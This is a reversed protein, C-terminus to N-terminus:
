VNWGPSLRIGFDHKTQRLHCHISESVDWCSAWWEFLNHDIIHGRQRISTNHYTRESKAVNWLSKSLLFEMNCLSILVKSVRTNALPHSGTVQSAWTRSEQASRAHLWARHKVAKPILLPISTSCFCLFRVTQFQLSLMSMYLAFGFWQTPQRFIGARSIFLSQWTQASYWLHM